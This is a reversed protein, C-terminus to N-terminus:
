SETQQLLLAKLQKQSRTLLLTLEPDQGKPKSQHPKIMQLLKANPKVNLTRLTIRGKVRGLMKKVASPKPTCQDLIKFSKCLPLQRQGSIRFVHEFPTPQIDHQQCWHQLLGSQRLATEPIVILQEPQHEMAFSFKLDDHSGEYTSVVKGQTDLQTAKIRSENLGFSGCIEKVESGMQIVEWSWKPFQQILQTVPAGPSLKIQAYSFKELLHIGDALAPLYHETLRQGDKRRAPDLFAYSHQKIEHPPALADCCFNHLSARDPFCHQLNTKCFLLALPNIDSILFNVEEGSLQKILSLADLGAGAAPIVVQQLPKEIRKLFSSFRYNSVCSQTAMEALESTALLPSSFTHKANIKQNGRGVGGLEPPLVLGDKAAAKRWALADQGLLSQNQSAQILWSLIKRDPLGM